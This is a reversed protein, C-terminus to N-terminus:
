CPALGNNAQAYEWSRVFLEELVDMDVDALKNIYICAKSTKHKGLKKMLGAYEPFGCSIYLVLNAKRPSFGMMCIDGEHGSDYKYHVKGFGIISPGWMVAKKRTIKRLLKLIVEADARRTDHEVAAIFDAPKIETPTTKNEAM